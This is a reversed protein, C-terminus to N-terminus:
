SESTQKVLTDFGTHNELGASTFKTTTGDYSFFLNSTLSYDVTSPAMSNTTTFTLTNSDKSYTGGTVSATSLVDGSRNKLSYQTFTHEFTKTADTLKLESKM